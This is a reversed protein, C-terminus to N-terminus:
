NLEPEKIGLEYKGPISFYFTSGSGLKSSVWINGDVSELLGKIIALGLGKGHGNSHAGNRARYFVSFIKDYENEPIGIGSDSVSFEFADNRRQWDIRLIPNEAKEPIFKIANDLLNQFIQSLIYRDFHLVPFDDAMEVQIDKQEIEFHLADLTNRILEELDIKEMSLQRTKSRSLDMLENLLELERDINKRVRKLRDLLDKNGAQEYKRFISDILGAVNRLPANLDHSIGRLFEDKEKISRQLLQNTTELTRNKERIGEELNEVTDLIDLTLGVTSSFLMMRDVDRPEVYRSQGIFGCAMVARIKDNGAVPIIGFHGGAQAKELTDYCPPSDTVYPKGTKLVQYIEHSVPILKGICEQSVLTNMYELGRFNGHTIKLHGDVVEYVFSAHFLFHDCVDKALRKLLLNKKSLQKYENSLSYVQAMFEIEQNLHFKANEERQLAIESSERIQHIKKSDELIKDSLRRLNKKIQQFEGAAPLKLHRVPVNDNLKQLVLNINQLPRGIKRDIIFAWIIGALMLSIALMMSFDYHIFAASAEASKRIGLDFFVKGYEDTDLSDQVMIIGEDATEAASEPAPPAYRFIMMGDRSEIRYFAVPYIRNFNQLYEILMSDGSHRIHERAEIKLFVSIRHIEAQYQRNWKEHQYNKHFVYTIGAVLLAALSSFLLIRSRITQFYTRFM